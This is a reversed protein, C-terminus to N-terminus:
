NCRLEKMRQRIQSLMGKADRRPVPNMCLVGIFKGALYVKIHQGGEKMEFPMGTARLAEHVERNIKNMKM